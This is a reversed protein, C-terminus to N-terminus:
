CAIYLCDPFCGWSVESEIGEGHDARGCGTGDQGDHREDEAAEHCDEVAVRKAADGVVLHHTLDGM